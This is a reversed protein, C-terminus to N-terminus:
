GYILRFWDWRNIGAELRLMHERKLLDYIRDRPITVAFLAFHKTIRMALLYDRNSRACPFYNQRM